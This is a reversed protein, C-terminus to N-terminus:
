QRQDKTPLSAFNQSSHPLIYTKSAYKLNSSLTTFTKKSIIPALLSSTSPSPASPMSSLSSQPPFAFDFDFDSFVTTSSSTM